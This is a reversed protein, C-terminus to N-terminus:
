CSKVAINNIDARGTGRQTHRHRHMSQASLQSKSSFVWFRHWLIMYLGTYYEVTSVHLSVNKTTRSSQAAKFRYTYNQHKKILSIQVSSTLDSVKRNSTPFAAPVGTTLMTLQYCSIVCTVSCIPQIRWSMKPPWNEQGQQTQLTQMRSWVAPEAAQRLATFVM